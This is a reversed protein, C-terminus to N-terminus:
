CHCRMNVDINAVVLMIACLYLVIILRNNPCNETFNDDEGLLRQFFAVWFFEDCVNLLEM